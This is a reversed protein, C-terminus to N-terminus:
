KKNQLYKVASLAATAGQGSAIILQKFPHNTIDGAAFVGETSTSCDLNTVILQNEDTDVLEKVISTDASHGIEVFVGDLAINKGNNTNIANVKDDGLIEGIADNYVIEINNNALVKEILVSEARFSDRRHILFVKQCISALTLAGELASNGGGVVAVIKNKFFNGDCNVCYSVGRGLFKDEGKANLKTPSKGFSLIISKAEVQASSLSVIFSNKSKTIKEAEAYKIEVHYDNLHNILKNILDIGSLRKEGPWNEIDLVNTLQGGMDRSIIIVKQKRRVAFIAATIGAIGGGIIAIDYM